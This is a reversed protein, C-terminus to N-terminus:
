GHAARMAALLRMSGILADALRRGEESRASPSATSRPDMGAAKRMKHLQGRIASETRGPLQDQMVWASIPKDLVPVLIAEEEPTWGRNCRQDQAAPREATIRSDNM